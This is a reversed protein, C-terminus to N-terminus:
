DASIRTRNRQLDEEARKRATIDRSIGFTGVINGAADRLPMKTTSVWTESGDLWTEKEELEVVPEGTRIIEQEMEFAAQAHATAFIDFDTKGILQAPDDVGAWEATSKSVLMFRGQTDKFYVHAPINDLLAHLLRQERALAEEARKRATIDRSICLIGEPVPFARVEYWRRRGNEFAYENIVTEPHRTTMVRQFTKFFETEEVGPFLETLKAGLLEDKPIQVFRTAADNVLIHRWERDLIYLSDTIAEVLFKYREESERLQEETRRRATIDGYAIAVGYGELPIPAATVNIWTVEGREKVVGMEVNEVRRQEEMARVSAYEAAPMPTGDPRVIQWELSDYKRATHENQSIGLLRESEENTELINGAADAISIGLPFSEFLVRYKELAVRLATQVERRAALELQLNENAQALEATREAVRHELEDHTRQLAGQTQQREIAYCLAHAVLTSTAEAKFLYDQAGARVTRRALEEDTRGTLVVIPLHPYRARLAAFTEGARSDPLDLDTLVADFGGADLRAMGAALRKVWEIEFTPLDWGITRAGQLMEQALRADGPNDEILLIKIIETSM